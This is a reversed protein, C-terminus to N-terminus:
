GKIAGYDKHRLYEYIGTLGGAVVSLFWAFSLATAADPPIGISGLLLVFAGERLGVGSISVPISSVTVIIPMFMFLALLPVREGLGMSLVYVALIIATQVVASLAITKLMVAGKKRYAHFYAYFDRLFRARQGVRLGFVVLSAAAFFVVILPLAWEIWSGSFYRYGFPFAILGMMMLTLFGMYRDMFVSALARTGDGAEKYLYYAKVADGGVLGPLFTNFFSGLLYLPFLRGVGPGGELLLRWRISSVFQASLYILVAAVFSLPAINRLLGFVKELGARSLVAYLLSSSVLFKLAFLLAKNPKRAL